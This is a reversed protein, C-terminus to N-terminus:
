KTYYPITRADVEIPLGDAWAPLVSLAEAFEESNRIDDFDVECLAEDHILLCIDYGKAEASLAGAVMVDAAIGQVINEVIKGGYLGVRGHGSIRTSADKLFGGRGWYSIEEGAQPWPYALCRGSPLRILLYPIPGIDTVSFRINTGAFFVRGPHKMASKVATECDRWLKVVKANERRFVSVAREALSTSIEQGFNECTAQFTTAGMGYGCGLVAQKGVFREVTSEGALKKDTLSKESVGFISSAMKIYADKGDRFLQLMDLQDAVWLLIRAEINAYDANLFVRGPQPQIFHRICSALTEPPLSDVTRSQIKAYASKTDKVTPRKFNQPQVLKASWRGTGAGHYFLTGRVRGDSNAARLMGPVKALAAFSNGAKFKLADLTNKDKVWRTDKLHKAITKAQLNQGPYGREKFWAMLAVNQTVRLGTYLYFEFAIDKEAQTIMTNAHALADINVPFGRDNIKSDLLYAGHYCVNDQDFKSLADLVRREAIVDQLCYTTFMEWSETDESPCEFPPVCYRKILDTGVSLKGDEGLELVYTLDILRSPMGARRAIAATCRWQEVAPPPFDFTNGWQYTTIAREFQANHAYVTHSPDSGIERLWQEALGHSTHKDGIRWVAPHEDDKAVAVMLIEAEEAYKYAGCKKLDVTSRTEYDLHYKSM